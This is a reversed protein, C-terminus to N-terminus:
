AAAFDRIILTELGDATLEVCSSLNQDRWAQPGEDGCEGAAILRAHEENKARIVFGFAKDYWPNWPEKGELRPRLIWLKM